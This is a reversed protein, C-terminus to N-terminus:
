TSHLSFILLDRLQTWIKSIFINKSHNLERLFVAQISCARSRGNFIIDFQIFTDPDSKGMM